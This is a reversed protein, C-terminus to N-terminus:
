FSTAHAECRRTRRAIDRRVMKSGGPPERRASRCRSCASNREWSTGTQCITVHGNRGCVVCCLALLEEFAQSHVLFRRVHQGSELGIAHESSVRILKMTALFLRYSLDESVEPRTSEQAGGNTSHSLSGPIMSTHRLTALSVLRPGHQSKRFLCTMLAVSIDIRPTTLNLSEHPLLCM